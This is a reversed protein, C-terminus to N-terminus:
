KPFNVVVNPAPLENRRTGAAGAPAPAWREGKAFAGIEGFAGIVEFSDFAYPLGEAALEDRGDAVHFHLHPGASSSGSNGLAALIQGRTVQDGAKVRLSGHKLHEYFAFRGRGLDLCVFNGSVNELPVRPPTGAPLAPAEAIDDKAEVVLADAVALVDAGYGYWNAIRSGDSQAHTGDPALMVWDIAFRAAIRARGRLAYISTRHGGILLPDYLAVWPGGRLPPGLVLPAEQRPDVLGSEVVVHEATPAVTELLIRHRLRVPTVAGAPLPLWLYMVARLGAAVRRRDALDPSVGPRGLRDRLAEDSFAALRTGRDGDLVEVSTLIVESARFNTLHLEYVLQREGAITVVAPPALVQVDITSLIPTRPQTRPQATVLTTVALAIALRLATM